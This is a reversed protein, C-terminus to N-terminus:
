SATTVAVWASAGDSNIFARTSSSSGTTNLYFSGRPATIVGNPSGAGAFFGVGLASLAPDYNRLDLAM